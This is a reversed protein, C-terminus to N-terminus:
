EKGADTDRQKTLEGSQTVMAVEAEIDARLIKNLKERIEQYRMPENNGGSNKIKDQEAVAQAELDELDLVTRMARGYRENWRLAAQLTAAVSTLATVAITVWILRPGGGETSLYTVLIPAATGLLATVALFLFHAFRNWWANNQRKDRTKTIQKMAEDLTAKPSGGSHPHHRWRGRDGGRRDNVAANM